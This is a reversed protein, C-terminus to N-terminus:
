PPERFLTKAYFFRTRALATVFTTLSAATGFEQAIIVDPSMSRGSFSGYVATQVDAIRDTGDWHSINWTAVRLQAHSSAAAGALLALAVCRASRLQGPLRMM